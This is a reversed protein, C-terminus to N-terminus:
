VLDHARPNMEPKVLSIDSDNSKQHQSLAPFYDEHPIDANQSAVKLEANPLKIASKEISHVSQVPSSASEIISENQHTQNPRNVARALGSTRDNIRPPLQLRARLNDASSTVLARLVSIPNNAQVGLGTPTEAFTNILKGLKFKPRHLRGAMAVQLKTSLPVRCHSTHGDLFSWWEPSFRSSQESSSTKYYFTDKGMFQEELHPEIEGIDITQSKYSRLIVLLDRISALLSTYGQEQSDQSLMLCYLCRIYIASTYFLYLSERLRNSQLARDLTSSISRLVFVFAKMRKKYEKTDIEHVYPAIAIFSHVSATELFKTTNQHGHLCVPYVSQGHPKAAHEFFEILMFSYQQFFMKFDAGKHGQQAYSLYDFFGIEGKLYTPLQSPSESFGIEPLLLTHRQYLAKGLRIMIEARHNMLGRSYDKTLHDLFMFLNQHHLIDINFDFTALYDVQGFDIFSHPRPPCFYPDADNVDCLLSHFYHNRQLVLSFGQHLKDETNERLSRDRRVFSRSLDNFCYYVASLFDDTYTVNIDGIAKRLMQTVDFLPFVPPSRPDHHHVCDQAKSHHSQGDRSIFYLGQCADRVSLWALDYDIWSERSWTGSMYHLIQTDATQSKSFTTIAQGIRDFFSTSFIYSIAIGSLRLTSFFAAHFTGSQPSKYPCQSPPRQPRRFILFWLHLAFNQYAPLFTTALLFLLVIGIAVTIPIVVTMNGLAHLFDIIGAFFLVLATQLLLPLATFIKWVHWRELGEARMRYIALTDRASRGPYSQHERLWQLSIIGVLVTTLSLILSLFWFVNVRVASSAPSFSTPLSFPSGTVNVPNDLRSAIHSLLIVMDVNPDRQLTRYSEIVFATIVASFLGAFILLNQVEDKWANCRINEKELLPDLIVKWPDGEPKKPAEEFDDSLEWEKPMDGELLPELHDKTQQATSPEPHPM